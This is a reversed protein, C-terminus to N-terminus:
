LALRFGFLNFNPHPGHRRACRALDGGCEASGGRLVPYVPGLAETLNDEIFRGGPYPAYDTSTWEEVNGAMDCVGYATPHAAYRTVSTTGGLGAERTNCLRADFTDGFPYDWHEPGRAAYEWEAETPLRWARGTRQRAWALYRAIDTATVGWVPHDEPLRQRISTAPPNGTEALFAGYQQNTVPFRALQFAAIEEPHLPMEKLLWSGFTARYEPKILASSWRRSAREVEEETSGMLFTGAPIPMLEVPELAPRALALPM